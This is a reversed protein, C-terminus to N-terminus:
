EKGGCSLAAIQADIAHDLDSYCNEHVIKGALLDNSDRLWRYRRADAELEAIRRDLEAVMQRYGEAKCGTGVCDGSM